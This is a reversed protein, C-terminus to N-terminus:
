KEVALATLVMEASEAAAVATLVIDASEAAAVATLVREASEPARPLSASQIRAMGSAEQM